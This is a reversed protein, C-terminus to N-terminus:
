VHLMYTVECMHPLVVTCRMLFCLLQSLGETEELYRMWYSDSTCTSFSCFSNMSSKPTLYSLEEEDNDEINNEAIYPLMICSDPIWPLRRLTCCVAILYDFYLSM